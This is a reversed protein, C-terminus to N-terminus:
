PLCSPGSRTPCTQALSVELLPLVRPIGDLSADRDGVRRAGLHLYFSEAHPDSEITLTHAGHAKATELAHMFLRRGAGCGMHEPLVWLHDLAARDGQILLAYFGAITQDRMAVHVPNIEAFTPTITLLDRWQAIWAEPYGWHRKAAHAIATLTDYETPIARRVFMM